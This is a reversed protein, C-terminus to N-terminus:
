YAGERRLMVWFTRALIYIDLWISWTRVYYEDWYPRETFESRNRVTVQWMGTMGPLVRIYHSYAKGYMERQEPFFPRPGVLSMEGKLVNWLQPFEDISYKRLFDGVSTVRPDNKLKQYKDWEARLLPDKQLVEDLVQHANHHMTRFKVMGFIRGGKGVREQHYFVSGPSSLKILIAILGFLPSLLLLGFLAGVIDILRKQFQAFKSLLNNHVKLGLLSDLTVPTVGLALSGLGSQDPILILRQFGGYDDKTIADILSVPAESLILIATKIGELCPNDPWIDGAPIVPVDDESRVRHNGGLGDVVAVPFYGIAPKRRLHKALQQGRNGYGIVVVPEGWLSLRGAIARLLNRGLPLLVLSFLWTMGLTLRSYDEPNRTFFTLGALSFVLTTTLTIRRLEEVSGLGIGPYLNSLAYGLLLVMGVPLIQGYLSWHWGQGLWLRAAIALTGALLIAMLDCFLLAASMWAPAHLQWVSLHHYGNRTAMSNM